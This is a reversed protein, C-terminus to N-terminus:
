RLVAEKLAKAATFRIRKKAPIQIEAGTAPNRGLRAKSERVYMKGLGFLPIKYGRKLCDTIFCKVDEAVEKAQSRKTLGCFGRINEVFESFTYSLSNTNRPKTATRVKEATVIAAVKKPAAKQAAKPASKPAAKKAVIKKKPATKKAM